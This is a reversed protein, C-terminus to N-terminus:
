PMRLAACTINRAFDELTLERRLLNGRVLLIRVVVKAVAKKEVKETTPKATGQKNACDSNARATHTPTHTFTIIQSHDIQHLKM